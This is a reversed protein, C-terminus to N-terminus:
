RQELVVSIRFPRGLASKLVVLDVTGTSSQLIADRLPLTNATAHGIQVGDVSLICDGRAIGAREAASGPEVRTVLAGRPTPQSSVGLIWTRHHTLLSDLLQLPYQVEGTGGDAETTAASELIRERIRQQQLQRQLETPLGGAGYLRHLEELLDSLHSAGGFTTATYGGLFVSTNQSFKGSMRPLEVRDATDIWVWVYVTPQLHFRVKGNRDTRQSSAQGSSPVMWVVVNAQPSEKAGLITLDIQVQALAATESHCVFFVTLILSLLARM